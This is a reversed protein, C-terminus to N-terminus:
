SRRQSQSKGHRRWFLAGSTNSAAQRCSLIYKHLQQSHMQWGLFLVSLFLQSDSTSQGIHLRSSFHSGIDVPQLARRLDLLLGTLKSRYLGSLARSSEFDTAATAAM